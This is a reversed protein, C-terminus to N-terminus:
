PSPPTQYVFVVRRNVAQGEVTGDSAIPEAEGRGDVVLRTPNVGRAVLAARIMEGRRKSLTLNRAPAGRGDTHVKVTFRAQPSGSLLAAILDLSDKAGPLLNVSSDAFELPQSVLVFDIQAAM